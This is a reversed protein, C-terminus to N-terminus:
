CNTLFTSPLETDSDSQMLLLVFIFLRLRPFIKHITKLHRIMGSLSWNGNCEALWSCFVASEINDSPIYCYCWCLRVSHYPLTSHLCSFLPIYIRCTRWLVLLRLLLSLAVRHIEKLSLARTLIFHYFDKAAERSRSRPLYINNSFMMCPKSQCKRKWTKYLKNWRLHKVATLSRWNKRLLFACVSKVVRTNQNTLQSKKKKIVPWDFPDTSM